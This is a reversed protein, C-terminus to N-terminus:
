AWVVKAKWKEIKVNDFAKKLMSLLFISLSLPKLKAIIALWGRQMQQDGQFVFSEKYQFPNLHITIQILCHILWCKDM